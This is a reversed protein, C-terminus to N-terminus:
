RIFFKKLFSRFLFYFCNAFLGFLIALIVLEGSQLVTLMSSFVQLPSVFIDISHIREVKGVVMAFGILFNYSVILLFTTQKSTRKQLLREFPRLGILFASLGIFEFVAYQGILIFWESAAVQPLQRVLHEIDTIVYITNPLFLFWLLIFVIRLIGNRVSFFLLMFLVPLLALALNFAMWPINYWLVDM